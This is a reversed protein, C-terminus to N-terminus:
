KVGQLVFSEDALGVVVIQAQNEPSESFEVLKDARSELTAVHWAVEAASPTRGLAQAYLTQIFSEGDGRMASVLALAIQALPTENVLWFDFGARDAPGGWAAEYLRNLQEGRASVFNLKEVGALSTNFGNGSVVARDGDQTVLYDSRKGALWLTDVGGGGAVADIRTDALRLADGQETGKLTDGPGYIAQLALLDLPQVGPKQGLFFSLSTGGMFQNKPHQLGLAHLIEHLVLHAAFGPRDLAAQSKATITTFWVDSDSAGGQAPFFGIGLSGITNVLDGLAFRIEGQEVEAFRLPTVAEIMHFTARVTDQQAATLPAFTSRLAEVVAEQGRAYVDASQSFSYTATTLRGGRILQEFTM